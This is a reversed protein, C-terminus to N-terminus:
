GPGLASALVRVPHWATRGTLDAIQHRCSTGGAVILTDASAQRVAPLPSQEAMAVSGDYHEAEDVFSGAMGCCSAEVADVALGPIRRLASTVAGFAEFAKQHCHGHVLARAQPLPHLALADAPRAALWQEITMARASVRTAAEGLGMALLEDRLTFLCSPELGVVAADRLAPEDLVAILRAVAARAEEVRGATLLTRGCCLPAGAEARAVAVRAGAARLM